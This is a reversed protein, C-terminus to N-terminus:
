KEKIFNNIKIMYKVTGFNYGFVDSYIRWLSTAYFFKYIADYLRNKPFQILLKSIPILFGHTSIMTSLKALNEIKNKEKPSYNLPTYHLYQPDISDYNGDFYNNEIAYKSLETDPYPQLISFEAREPRCKSNLYITEYEQELTESPIGLMNQTVIKINYKKLLRCANIIQENSMNRGLIEKRIKENGTEIAMYVAVCNADSMNKIMYGKVLDARINCIFPLNIERKYKYCFEKLWDENLNFTDDVFKVAKMVYRGRVQKIEQIVNDVSRRRLMKGNGLYLANYKKNFCYTCQFPCGRSTLFRKMELQAFFPEKENVIERDPFPIDDLNDILPRLKNKFIKNDKKGM